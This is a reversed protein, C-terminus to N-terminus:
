VWSDDLNSKPGERNSVHTLLALSAFLERTECAESLKTPIALSLQLMGLLRGYSVRSERAIRRDQSEVALHTLGITRKTLELLPTTPTFDDSEHVDRKAM